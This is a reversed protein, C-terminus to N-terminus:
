NSYKIEGIPLLAIRVLRRIELKQTDEIRCAFCNRTDHGIKEAVSGPLETQFKLKAVTKGPNM